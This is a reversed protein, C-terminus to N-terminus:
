KNRLWTRLDTTIEAALQTLAAGVQTIRILGANALGRGVDRVDEMMNRWGAGGIARAVESPCISSTAARANLMEMTCERIANEGGNGEEPNASKAAEAEGNSELEEVGPLCNPSTAGRENLLKTKCEKLADNGHNGEGSNLSKLSKGTANSRTNRYRGHADNGPARDLSARRGEAQGEDLRTNEVNTQGVLSIAGNEVVAQLDGETGSQPEADADDTCDDAAAQLTEKRRGLSLKSRKRVSADQGDNGKRRGLSEGSTTNKQAGARRKSPRPGLNGRRTQM